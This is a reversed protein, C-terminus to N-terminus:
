KRKNTENLVHFTYHGGGIYITTHSFIKRGTCHFDCVSNLQATFLYM